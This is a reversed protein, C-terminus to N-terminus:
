RVADARKMTDAVLIGEQDVERFVASVSRQGSDEANEKGRGSSLM